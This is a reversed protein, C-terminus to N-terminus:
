GVPEPTAGPTGELAPEPEPTPPPPPPANLPPVFKGPAPTPTPGTVASVKTAARREDLWQMTRAQEIRNIQADSLPRDTEHGTVRVIGWGFETQFPASTAGPQLAFAADALPAPVEERAFWGLEGGNGATAEDTSKERALTAFDAGAKLEAEIEDALEKTAVLIHSAQVQEASQGVESAIKDAVERRAVAPKAILRRYDNASLHAGKLFDTEFRAFGAEATARAEALDPAAAATLAPAPTGSAPVSAALAPPSPLPLSTPAYDPREMRALALAEATATASDARAPILTPQPTPTTLPADAAAFQELTWQDVAADTVELGLSPLGQMYLQDDIMRNLTTPDVTTNGWVTPIEALANQAMSLYQGSQDSGVMDAFAQFQRAQEMLDVARTKWYDTRSISVGGVTALSAHPKIVFENLAGGVIVLVVLAGAIGIGIRLRRQQQREREGRSIRRKRAPNTAPPAEGGRLRAIWGRVGGREEQGGQAM